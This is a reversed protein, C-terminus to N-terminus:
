RDARAHDRLLRNRSRRRAPILSGVHMQFDLPHPLITPHGANVATAHAQRGTVAIKEILDLGFDTFRPHPSGADDIDLEDVEIPTDAAEKQDFATLLSPAAPDHFPEGSVQTSFKGADSPERRPTQFVHLRERGRPRFCDRLLSNRSQGPPV